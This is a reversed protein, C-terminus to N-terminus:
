DQTHKKRQSSNTSCTIRGSRNMILVNAGRNCSYLHIHMYTYIISQSTHMTYYLTCHTKYWYLLSACVCVCMCVTSLYDHRQKTPLFMVWTYSGFVINFLDKSLLDICVGCVCFVCMCVYMCVYRTMRQDIHDM